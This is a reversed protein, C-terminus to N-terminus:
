LHGEDLIRKGSQSEGRSHFADDGEGVWLSGYDGPDDTLRRGSTLRGVYDGGDPRDGLSVLPGPEDSDSHSAELGEYARGEM